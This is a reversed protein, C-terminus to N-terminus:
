ETDVPLGSPKQHLFFARSYKTRVARYARPELSYDFMGAISTSTEDTTGLRGLSWTDEIYRIISGFEYTTQSIEGAPVYPSVVIMPVRFGPGGQSDLEPPAVPDYIGGWDDWVIVVATSNWYPSEGIANVIGAVWSPGTDSSYGPHDSNAADPIVWSMQPLSGDAIDTLINNSPTSIHASWESPNDYLSAIVAFANWLAGVTYSTAAPTYYKWSISKADLLDALTKYNSGTYPFASTCPFPGKGAEYVLSTTILTTVTNAPSNCGWAKKSTPNDVISDTADIESGGRILDQHATFSASGQTQFMKNALAYDSALTWYETIDSPNVYQYPVMGERRGSVASVIRNFADMNGNRYATKYAPYLHNLNDRIALPTETLNVTITKAHRGGGTRWLGTTTGTVGPYTAFLDNFTRNEQVLLVIHQIPDSTAPRVGNPHALKEAPLSGANGGCGAALAGLLFLFAVRLLPRVIM